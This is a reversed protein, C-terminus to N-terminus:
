EYAQREEREWKDDRLRDRREGTDQDCLAEYCGRCMKKGVGTYGPDLPRGCLCHQTKKNM